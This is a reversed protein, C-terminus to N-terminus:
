SRRSRNNPRATSAIVDGILCRNRAAQLVAMCEASRPSPGAAALADVYIRGDPLVGQPSVGKDLLSKLIIPHACLVAHGIPSLDDNDKVDLRAGRSMIRIAARENGYDCAMLLPTRGRRDRAEINAGHDLFLDVLEPENNSVALHLPTYGRLNVANVDAGRGLALSVAALLQPSMPSIAAAMIPTLGGDGSTNRTDVCAGHDLLLEATNPHGNAIAKYLAMSRGDSSHGAARRESIGLLTKVVDIYGYSAAAAMATLNSDDMQCFNAGREVLLEVVRLHGESAACKLPFHGGATMNPDDGRHLCESVAALDGDLCACL